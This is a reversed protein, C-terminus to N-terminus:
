RARRTWGSGGVTVLKVGALPTVPVLTVMVPVLKVPAVTTRKLVM